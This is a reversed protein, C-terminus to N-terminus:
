LPVRTASEGSICGTKMETFHSEFFAIQHESFESPADTALRQMSFHYYVTRENIAASTQLILETRRM